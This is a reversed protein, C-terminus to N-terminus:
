TTSARARSSRIASRAASARRCDSFQRMAADYNGIDWELLGLVNLTKGEALRDGSKREMALARDLYKRADDFNGLRWHCEGIYHLRLPRTAVSAAAASSSPSGCSNRCPRRPAKRAICRLQPTWAHIWRTPTVAPIVLAFLAGLALLFALGLTRKSMDPDILFALLFTIRASPRLKPPIHTSTYSTNLARPASGTAGDAAM